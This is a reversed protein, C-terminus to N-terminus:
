QATSSIIPNRITLSPIGDDLRRVYVHARFTLKFRFLSIATGFNGSEPVRERYRVDNAEGSHDIISAKIRLHREPRRSLISDSYLGSRRLVRHLLTRRSVNLWATTGAPIDKVPQFADQILLKRAMALAQFM